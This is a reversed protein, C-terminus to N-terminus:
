SKQGRNKAKVIVVNKYSLSFLTIALVTTGLVGFLSIELSGEGSFIVKALMFGCVIGLLVILLWFTAHLKGIQVVVEDDGVARSATPSDHYFIEEGSQPHPLRSSDDGAEGAINTM